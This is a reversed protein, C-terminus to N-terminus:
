HLIPWFACECAEFCSELHDSFRSEIRSAKSSDVNGNQVRITRHCTSVTSDQLLLALPERSPELRNVGYQKCFAMLTRRALWTGLPKPGYQCCSKDFKRIRYM